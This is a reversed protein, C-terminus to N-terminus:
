SVYALKVANYEDVISDIASQEFPRLGSVVMDKTGHGIAQGDVFLNFELKVSGKKGDVRMSAGSFELDLSGELFSHIEIVMDKYIILPRAPNIMVGKKQMLDILIEPFTRGSFQVYKEILSSIFKDNNSQEGSCQVTMMSKNNQDSLIFQESLKEPLTVVTQETVMSEFSFRMSQSVGLETLAVAFLLDGPVCFRKTEVDHLPNFDGAVSKAFLSAQQRTFSVKQDDIKYFKKIDM